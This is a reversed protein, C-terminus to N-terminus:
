SSLSRGVALAGAGAGRVGDVLVFRVAVEGRVVVGDRGDVGLALAEAGAALGAAALLLRAAPVASVAVVVASTRDFLFLTPSVTVALTALSMLSLVPRTTMGAPECTTRVTVAMLTESFLLSLVPVRVSLGVATLM